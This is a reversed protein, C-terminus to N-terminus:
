FVTVIRPSRLSSAKVRHWKSEITNSKDCFLYTFFLTRVVTMMTCDVGSPFRLCLTCGWCNNSTSESWRNYNRCWEKLSVIRVCQISYVSVCLPAPLVSFVRQVTPLVRQVTPLSFGFQHTFPVCTNRNYFHFRSYQEAVVAGCTDSLSIIAGPDSLGDLKKINPYCVPLCFVRWRIIALMGESLDSRLKKRFIIKIRQPQELINSSNWILFSSKILWQITIWVANQDQSM